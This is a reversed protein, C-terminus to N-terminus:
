GENNPINNAELMCSSKLLFLGGRDSIYGMFVITTAQSLTCEIVPLSDPALVSHQHLDLQWGM